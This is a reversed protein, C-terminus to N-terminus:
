TRPSSLFPVVVALLREPSDVHAFHSTDELWVLEAGPLLAALERGVRPPVMPDQRAYVLQLPVPFPRRELARTLQRMARPDLTDALYSVFARSGEVSALASGYERAEELSKLSEDFYHVHRHAWRQPDRRVFRALAGRVGPVSLAAHLAHLRLDPTGPSHVNVLRSFVTEDELVARLCLYGGLSNGICACGRIGLADTLEVVFRALADATYAVDPKDSRGAGPLDPAIVRFSRALPELVYRWSYSSTMLGHVLLLPPGDGLERLHVSCRGFGRTELTVTRASARHWAHPLRPREPLADFSGRTFPKM